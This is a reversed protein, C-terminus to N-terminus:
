LEEQLEQNAQVIRTWYRNDRTEEYKAILKSLRLIRELAEARLGHMQKRYKSSKKAANAVGKLKSLVQISNM